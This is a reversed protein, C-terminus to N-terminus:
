RTGIYSKFGQWSLNGPLDRIEEYRDISLYIVSSVRTEPSVKYEKGSQDSLQLMSHIPDLFLVMRTKDPKDPLSIIGVSILSPSGYNDLVAQMDIIIDPTFSVMSVVDNQFGLNAYDCNAGRKGGESSFDFSECHSFVTGSNQMIERAASITTIGPVIGYFCPPGCPHKTLFGGDSITNQSQPMPTSVIATTRSCAAALFAFGLLLIKKM